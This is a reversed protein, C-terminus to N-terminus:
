RVIADISKMSKQMDELQPKVYKKFTTNIDAHGLIRSLDAVNMGAHITIRPLDPHADLYRVWQNHATYQSLREGRKNRIYAGTGNEEWYVHDVLM